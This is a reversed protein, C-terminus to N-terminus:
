GAAGSTSSATTTPCVVSRHIITGDAFASEIDVVGRADRRMVYSRIQRTVPLRVTFGHALAISPMDVRRPRRPACSDGFFAITLNFSGDSKFNATLTKMSHNVIEIRLVDGVTICGTEENRVQRLSKLRRTGPRRKAAFKRAPAPLGDFYRCLLTQRLAPPM